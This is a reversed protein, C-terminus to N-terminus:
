GANADRKKKLEPWQVRKWQRIAKEDREIARREPRQCSFGLSGM